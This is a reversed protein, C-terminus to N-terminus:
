GRAEDVLAKFIARMTPRWIMFEPHFQLGLYFPHNPREIAQVVGNRERAIIRLNHGIRDVSQTHLSNVRLTLARTLKHLLSDPKVDIPKRFFIKRLLRKPYHANEYALSVDLHLTGKNMVNMM